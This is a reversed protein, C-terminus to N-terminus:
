NGGCIRKIILDAETLERVEEENILELLSPRKSEKIPNNEKKQKPKQETKKNKKFIEPHRNIYQWLNKDRINFNYKEKLFKNILPISVGKEKFKLIVKHYILLKGKKQNKLLFVTMERKTVKENKM